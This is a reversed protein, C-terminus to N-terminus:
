YGFLELHSCTFLKCLKKKLKNGPTRQGNEVLTYYTRGINVKFATYEQTWGKKLRKEKLPTSM